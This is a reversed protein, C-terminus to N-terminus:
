SRKIFAFPLQNFGLRPWFLLLPLIKSCGRLEANKLPRLSTCSLRSNSEPRRMPTRFLQLHFFFFYRDLGDTLIASDLAPNPSSFFLPLIKSKFKAAALPCVGKFTQIALLMSSAKNMAPLPEFTPAALLRSRLFSIKSELAQQYQISSIGPPLILEVWGADAM